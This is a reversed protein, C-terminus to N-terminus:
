FPKQATELVKVILALDFVQQGLNDRVVDGLGPHRRGVLGVRLLMERASKQAEYPEGLAVVHHQDRLLRRHGDDAVVDDVRDLVRGHDVNGVVRVVFILESVLDLLGIEVFLLLAEQSAAKWSTSWSVTTKTWEELYRLIKEDM